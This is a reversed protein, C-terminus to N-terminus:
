DLEAGLWVENHACARRPSCEETIKWGDWPQHFGKARLLRRVAADKEPNYGDTEVLILKVQVTNFDFTELVKLEAGEVDLSFLDVKTVNAQSLMSSIPACPVDVTNTGTGRLERPLVTADGASTHLFRGSVIYPVTFQEKQCVARPSFIINRGRGRTARLRGSVAPNGEILVGSWGLTDEFFKSNSFMVGDLAGIEVYTGNRVNCFYREYLARDENSQSYLKSGPPVSCRKGDGPASPELPNRLADVPARLALCLCCAPLRSTM